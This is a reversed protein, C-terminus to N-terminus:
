LETTSRRCRGTTRACGPSSTCWHFGRANAALAGAVTANTDGQVVVAPLDHAALVTDLGGLAAPIQGARSLDGVGLRIDPVPMGVHDAVDESMTADFHQGTHVLAYPGLRRVIGSLKIIEPRTGYVVAVRGLADM